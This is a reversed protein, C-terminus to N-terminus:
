YACTQFFMPSARKHERANTNERVRGGSDAARAHPCHETGPMDTLFLAPIYSFSTMSGVALRQGHAEGRNCATPTFFITSINLMERPHRLTTLIQYIADLQAASAGIM